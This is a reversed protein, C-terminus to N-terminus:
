KQIRVKSSVEESVSRHVSVYGDLGLVVSVHHQTGSSVLGKWRVRALSGESFELKM